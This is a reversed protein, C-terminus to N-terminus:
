SISKKILLDILENKILTEGGRWQKTGDQTGPVPPRAYRAQHKKYEEARRKQTDGRNADPISGALDFSKTPCTCSAPPKVLGTPPSRCTINFIICKIYLASKM